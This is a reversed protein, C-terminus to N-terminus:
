WTGAHQEYVGALDSVREWRGDIRIRGSATVYAETHDVNVFFPVEQHSAVHQHPTVLLDLDTSTVRWPTGVHQGPALEFSVERDLRIWERERYGSDNHEFFAQTYRQAHVGYNVLSALAVDRNQIALWHWGTRRPVKGFAHDSYGLADTLAYTREPTRVTGTVRNHFFHLLGYQDELEHDFRTYPAATPQIDLEATIGGRVLSLKWGTEASGTYAVELDRASHRLVLEGGEPQDELYLKKTFHVPEPLSPDFVTFGFCDVVNVRIFYWSVYVGSQPDHVGSYWWEKERWRSLLSWRSPLVQPHELQM